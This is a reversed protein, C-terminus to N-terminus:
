RAAAPTGQAAASVEAQLATAPTFATGHLATAAITSVGVLEGFINIVPAGSIVKTTDINTEIAMLTDKTSTGTGFQLGAVIGIQVSVRDTGSLSIVTTGLKLASPDGFTVPTLTPVTGGETAPVLRRLSFAGTGSAPLPETPVTSGDELIVVYPGPATLAAADTAILADGVAIGLAVVRTVPLSSETEEVRGIKVVSARMGEISATILDDEKVVVTTEKTTVPRNNQDPVIREVTREVVRNITQTVAPPAQELLSVTVIGTAISTIFSVLLVLLVIQTKTLHELDM